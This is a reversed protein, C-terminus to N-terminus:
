RRLCLRCDRLAQLAFVAGRNSWLGACSRQKTPASRRAPGHVFRFGVLQRLKVGALDLWITCKREPTRHLKPGANVSTDDLGMVQAMRLVKEDLGPLNFRMVVPLIVANTLGHQTNFEGGVMHSIAHVLGLGKNFAIGALCSGTLMAGRAAINEPERFAIPLWKAILKLGELAAGDSLPHFAPVIYAEVAHTLADVGTWATLHAPLDVTLKPDLIAQSPRMGPHALCFKMGKKTDTVMSYSETEAGTGATTPITIFPPFPRDPGVAPLPKRYEFDWLAVNSNVTMGIAKAGDM